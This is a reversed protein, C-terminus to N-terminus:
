QVQLYEPSLRVDFRNHQTTDDFARLTDVLVLTNGVSVDPHVSLVYVDGRFDALADRLEGFERPEGCREATFCRADDPCEIVPAPAGGPMDLVVSSPTISVVVGQWDAPPTSPPMPFSEIRGNSNVALRPRTLGGEELANRLAAVRGMAVCRGVNLQVERSTQMGLLEAERERREMLNQTVPVFEAPNEGYFPLERSDRNLEADKAPISGRHGLIAGNEGVVMMVDPTTTLYLNEVRPLDSYWPLDPSRILEERVAPITSTYFSGFHLTVPVATLAVLVLAAMSWRRGEAYLGWLMLSGLMILGAAVVFFDISPVLARPYKFVVKALGVMVSAFSFVTVTTLM